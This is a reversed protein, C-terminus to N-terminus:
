VYEASVAGYNINDYILEYRTHASYYTVEIQFSIEYYPVGNPNAFQLFKEKPVLGFDANLEVLKVVNGTKHILTPKLEHPRLEKSNRYMPAGNNNPDACTYIDVTIANPKGDSVWYTKTYPLRFPKYEEVIQGKCIDAILDFKLLTIKAVKKIFWDMTNIGWACHYPCMFRYQVILEM